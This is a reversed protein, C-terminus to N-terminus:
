KEMALIQPYWYPKVALLAKQAAEITLYGKQSTLIMPGRFNKPDQQIVYYKM